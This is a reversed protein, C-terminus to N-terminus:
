KQLTFILSKNKYVYIKRDDIFKHLIWISKQIKPGLWKRWQLWIEKLVYNLTKCKAPKRWPFTGNFWKSFSSVRNIDHRLDVILAIFSQARVEHKEVDHLFNAIPAFITGSILILHLHTLFFFWLIFNGGTHCKTKHNQLLHHIGHYKRNKGCPSSEMRVFYFEVYYRQCRFSSFIYKRHSKM